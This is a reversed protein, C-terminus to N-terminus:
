RPYVVYDVIKSVSGFTVEHGFAAAVVRHRLVPAARGM